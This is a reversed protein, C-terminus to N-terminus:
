LRKQPSPNIAFKFCVNTSLTLTILSSQFFNLTNTAFDRGVGNPFNISLALNSLITRKYIPM